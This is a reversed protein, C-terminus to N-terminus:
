RLAFTTHGINNDGEFIDIHYLGPKLDQTSRKHWRVCIDLANNEYTVEKKISYQLTEGNFVFSHDDSRKKVLIKKDPQAIRVYITRKGPEVISNEGLTFCVKILDVRRIKDTEIEKGGGKKHMAGSKLNYVNLVSAEDVKDTLVVTQEELQRYKRKEIKIKEKIQLNEETLDQNITVISDMQRVYGQAIVQLRSMKKKIKYYEWKFNLMKKIEVANAQIVSDMVQLSDTVDGYAIKIEEHAALLTQLEQKLETKQMEKEALLENMTSKVSLLWLSVGVIGLAMIVMVIYMWLNSGGKGHEGNINKQQEM